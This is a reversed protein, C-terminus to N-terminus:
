AITVISIAAPLILSRLWPPEWLWGNQIEDRQVQVLDQSPPPLLSFLEQGGEHVVASVTALIVRASSFLERAKSAPQTLSHGLDKSSVPALHGRHEDQSDSHKM